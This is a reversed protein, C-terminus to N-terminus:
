VEEVNSFTVRGLRNRTRNKRQEAIHSFISIILGPVSALKQEIEQGGAGAELLVDSFETLFFRQAM